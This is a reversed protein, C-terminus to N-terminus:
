KEELNKLIKKLLNNTEALKSHLDDIDHIQTVPMRNRIDELQAVISAALDPNITSKSSHKKAM